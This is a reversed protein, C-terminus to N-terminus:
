HGYPTTFSSQVRQKYADDRNLPIDVSAAAALLETPNLEVGENVPVYSNIRFGSDPRNTSVTKLDQDYAATDQYGERIAHGLVRSTRGNGDEFPHALVIALALVNGARNLFIQAEDPQANEAIQSIMSIASQFLPLREDPQMLEAVTAGDKSKITRAVPSLTHAEDPAVAEHISTVASLLGEATLGLLQTARVNPDDNLQLRELAHKTEDFILEPQSEQPATLLQEM